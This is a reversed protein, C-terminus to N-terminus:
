RMTGQKLLGKAAAVEKPSFFEGYEVAYRVAKEYVEVDPLLEQLGPKAKLAIKLERIQAQFGALQKKLEALDAAPVDIGKPPIPRVNDPLNDKPGDAAAPGVALAALAALLPLAAFHRPTM